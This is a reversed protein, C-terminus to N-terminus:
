PATEVDEVVSEAPEPGHDERDDGTREQLVVGLYGGIAGTAAVLVATVALAFVMIVLFVLSRVGVGGALAGLGLGGFVLGLVAFVPIAAILGSVAGVKAGEVRTGQQLYGAIGGGVVTAFPIWSLLVMVVAGILANVWFDGERRAVFSNSQTAM